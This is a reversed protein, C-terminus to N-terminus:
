NKVPQPTITGQFGPVSDGPMIVDVMVVGGAVGMRLDMKLSNAMDKTIRSDEGAIDYKWRGDLIQKQLCMSEFKELPALSGAKVKQGFSDFDNQNYPILEFTIAQAPYETYNYGSVDEPPLLHELKYYITGNYRGLANTGFSKVADIKLTVVYDTDHAHHKITHDVKFLWDSDVSASSSKPNTGVSNQKNNVPNVSNFDWNCGAVVVVLLLLSLKKIFKM